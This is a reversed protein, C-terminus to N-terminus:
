TRVIRRKPHYIKPKFDGQQVIGIGRLPIEPTIELTPAMIIIVEVVTSLDDAIVLNAQFAIDSESALEAEFVPPPPPATAYSLGLLMIAPRLFVKEDIGTFQVFFDLNQAGDTITPTAMHFVHSVEVSDYSVNNRLTAGLSPDSTPAIITTDDQRIWAWPGDASTFPAQASALLVTDMGVEVANNIAALQTAVDDDVTVDSPTHWFLNPYHGARLLFLSSERHSNQPFDFSDDCSQVGLTHTSIALDEIVGFHLFTHEEDLTRGEQTWDGAILTSGDLALRAKGRSTNTDMAAQYSFIGVWDEVSVPTWAVAARSTGSYTLTNTVLTTSQNWFWDTGEIGLDPVRLLVVRARRIYVTQSAAGRRLDLDLDALTGLSIRTMYAQHRGGSALNVTPTAANSVVASDYTLQWQLKATDGGISSGFIGWFIVIAEDDDAFGATALEAATVTLKTEFSASTTSVESDIVAIAHAIGAIIPSLVAETAVDSEQAQEVSLLPEPALIVDFAVDQEFAVEEVMAVQTDFTVDTAVDNEIGQEVSLVPETILVVDTATDQESAPEAEFIPEDATTEALGWILFKTLILNETAGGTHRVFLDLDQAGASLFDYGVWFLQPEDTADNSIALFHTTSPDTTPEIFTSGGKRVWMHMTQEATDINLNGQGLILTDLDASLSSGLTAVQTDTATDVAVTGPETFFLDSWINKRFALIASERHNNAATATDDRTEVSVAHTATSLNAADFLLHTWEESTSNAEESWDGAALAGDVMLRVECNVSASDIAIHTYAFIIWDQTAGSTPITVAARNTGSYTTTHAVDTTSKNWVWDTGENGFESAKIVLFEIKEAHADNTSSSAIDFEFDALASLDLRGMFALHRRDANDGHQRGPTNTNTVLAGDYNIRYSVRSSGGEITISSLLWAFVFVEDNDIFGEDALETATVTLANVFNTDPATVQSTVSRHLHVAM